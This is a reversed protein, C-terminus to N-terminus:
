VNTGMHGTGNFCCVVDVADARTCFPSRPLYDTQLPSHDHIGFWRFNRGRIFNKAPDPVRQRRTELHSSGSCTRANKSSCRLDHSEFYTHLPAICCRRERTQRAACTRVRRMSRKQRNAARTVRKIAPRSCTARRPNRAGRLAANFLGTCKTKSREVRGGARVDDIRRTKRGRGDAAGARSSDSTESQLTM